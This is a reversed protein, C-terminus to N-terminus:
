GERSEAEQGAARTWQLPDLRDARTVFHLLSTVVQCAKDGGPSILPGTAIRALTAMPCPSLALIRTGDLNHSSEPIEPYGAVCWIEPGYSLQSLSANAICLDPTRDGEAGGDM